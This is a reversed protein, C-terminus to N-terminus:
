HPVIGYVLHIDINLSIAIASRLITMRYVNWNNELHINADVRTPNKHYDEFRWAWLLKALIYKDM